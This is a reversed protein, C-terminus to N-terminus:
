LAHAHPGSSAQHPVPTSMNLEDDDSNGLSHKPPELLDKLPGGLDGPQIEQSDLIEEIGERLEALQPGVMADTVGGHQVDMDGSRVDMDSSRVGIFEEATAEATDAAQDKIIEQQDQTLHADAEPNDTEFFSKFISSVKNLGIEIYSWITNALDEGVVAEFGSWFMDKIATLDGSLIAGVFGATQAAEPQTDAPKPSPPPPTPTEQDSEAAMVGAVADGPTVKHPSSYNDKVVPADDAEHEPEWDPHGIKQALDAPTIHSESNIAGKNFLINYVREYENLFGNPGLSDLNYALNALNSFVFDDGLMVDSQKEATQMAEVANFAIETPSSGSIEYSPDADHEEVLDHPPSKDVQDHPPRAEYATFGQGAVKGVIAEITDSGQVLVQPLSLIQIDEWDPWSLNFWGGGGTAEATETTEAEAEDYTKAKAEPETHPRHKQFYTGPGTVDKELAGAVKSFDATVDRKVLNALDAAIRQAADGGSVALDFIDSFVNHWPEEGQEEVRREDYPVAHAASDPSTDQALPRLNMPM